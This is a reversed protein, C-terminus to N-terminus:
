SPRCGFPVAEIGSIVGHGPILLPVANLKFNDHNTIGLIEHM